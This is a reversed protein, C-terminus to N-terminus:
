SYRVDTKPLEFESDSDQIFLLLTCVRWVALELWVSAINIILLYVVSYLTMYHDCYIFRTVM